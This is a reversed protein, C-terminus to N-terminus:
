RGAFPLEGLVSFTTGFWQTLLEGAKLVIALLITKVTLFILYSVYRDFYPASWRSAGMATFIPALAVTLASQLLLFYTALAVLAYAFFIALGTLQHGFMTAVGTGTFFSGLGHIFTIESYQLYLVFGNKFIVIPTFGSLGTMERVLSQAGGLIGNAFSNYPGAALSAFLFIFWASRTAFFYPPITETKKGRLRNIGAGALELIALPIGLAWGVSVLTASAELIAQTIFDTVLDSEQARLLPSLFTFVTVAAALLLLKGPRRLRFAPPGPLDRPGPNRDTGFPM